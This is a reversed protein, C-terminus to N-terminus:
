NDMKIKALMEVVETEKKSRIEFRIVRGETYKTAGEVMAIVEPALDSERVAAVAREGLIIAAVFHKSRPGLHLITRKKLQLRLSWGYKKAPVAWDETVQGFQESIHTRLADWAAASRGLVRRIDAPEPPCPSDIFPNPSPPLERSNSKAPM